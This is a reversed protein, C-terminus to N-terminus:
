TPRPPGRSPFPIVNCATSVRRKKPRGRRPQVLDRLVNIYCAREEYTMQCFRAFLDELAAGIRENEYPDIM